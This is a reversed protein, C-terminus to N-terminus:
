SCRTWRRVEGEGGSALAWEMVAGCLLLKWLVWIDNLLKTAIPAQGAM